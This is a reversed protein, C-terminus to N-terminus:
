SITYFAVTRELAVSYMAWRSFRLLYRWFSFAERLDRTSAKSIRTMDRCAGFLLCGWRLEIFLCPPGLLPNLMSPIIPHSVAPRFPCVTILSINCTPNTKFFIQKAPMKPFSSCLIGKASTQGGQGWPNPTRLDSNPPFLWQTPAISINAKTTHM